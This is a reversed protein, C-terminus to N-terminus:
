AWAPRAAQQGRPLLRVPQERHDVVQEVQRPDLLPADAEVQARDRRGIQDGLRDVPVFAPSAIGADPELGDDGESQRRHPDIALPDAVDEVVQDAVRQGVGLAAAGDADRRLGVALVDSNVTTSM